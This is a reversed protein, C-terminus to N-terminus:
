ATSCSSASARMIGPSIIWRPLPTGHGASLCLGHKCDFDTECEVKFSFDVSRAHSRAGAAARGLETAGPEIHLPLFRRPAHRPNRSVRSSSTARTEVRRFRNQIKRVREGGIVNVMAINTTSNAFRTQLAPDADKVFFVRLRRQQEERVPEEHHVVELYDIGNLTAHARVLSRRGEECCFYNM